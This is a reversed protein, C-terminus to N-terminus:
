AIFRGRIREPREQAAKVELQAYVQELPPRRQKEWLTVLVCFVGFSYYAAEIVGEIGDQFARQKVMRTVFARAPATLLRRATVQPEDRELMQQAGIPLTSIFKELITRTDRHSFHWLEGSLMGRPGSLEPVESIDDRYRVKERRMLRPTSNRWGGGRLHKGFGFHAMPIDFAVFAGPSALAYQIQQALAPTVREDVDVVLIWEGGAKDIAYNRQGSFTDFKRVYVKNTFERAVRETEDDSRSDVIFVIEDVFSLRELCPRVMWGQDHAIIVASLTVSAQHPAV